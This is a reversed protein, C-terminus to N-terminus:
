WKESSGVVWEHSTLRGGQRVRAMPFFAKHDLSILWQNGEILDEYSRIEWRPVDDPTYTSRGYVM